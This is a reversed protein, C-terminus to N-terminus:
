FGVHLEYVAVRGSFAVYCSTLLKSTPAVILNSAGKLSNAATKQKELWGADLVHVLRPM